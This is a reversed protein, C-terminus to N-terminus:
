AVPDNVFGRREAVRNKNVTYEYFNVYNTIDDYSTLTDPPNTPSGPSDILSRIRPECSALLAGLAALGMGKIFKRRSLYLAQPTVEDPDVPVSRINKNKM